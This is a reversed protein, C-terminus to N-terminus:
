RKRTSIAIRIEVDRAASEEFDILGLRMGEAKFADTWRGVLLEVQVVLYRRAGCYSCYFGGAMLRTPEPKPAWTDTM